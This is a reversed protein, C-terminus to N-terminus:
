KTEVTPVEDKTTKNPDAFAYLYSQNLVYIVGNAVVPTGYMPYGLNVENIVRKQKSAALVCVTTASVASDYRTVHWNAAVPSGGPSM